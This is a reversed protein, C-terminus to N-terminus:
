ALAQFHETMVPQRGAVRVSAVFKRRAPNLIIDLWGIRGGRREAAAALDRALQEQVEIPVDSALKPVYEAMAHINSVVLESIEKAHEFLTEYPAMFAEGDGVEILALEWAEAELLHQGVERAQEALAE